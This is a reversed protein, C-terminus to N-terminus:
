RNRRRLVAATAGIAVLATVAIGIGTTALISHGGTQPLAVPLATWQAYLTLNQQPIASAQNETFKTGTGDEKTNWGTFTYGPVTFGNSRINVASGPLGSQSATSGTANEHNPKYDIWRAEQGVAGNQPNTSAATKTIHGPQPGVATWEDIQVRQSTNARSFLIQYTSLLSPVAIGLKIGKAIM